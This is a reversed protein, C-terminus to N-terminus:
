YEVLVYKGMSFSNAIFLMFLKLSKIKFINGPPIFSSPSNITYAKLKDEVLSKSCSIKSINILCIYTSVLFGIIIIAVAFEFSSILGTKKLLSCNNFHINFLSEIANSLLITLCITSWVKYSLATILFDIPAGDTCTTFHSSTPPKIFTFSSIIDANFGLFIIIHDVQFQFFMILLLQPLMYKTKQHVRNMLELVHDFHLNIALQFPHFSM